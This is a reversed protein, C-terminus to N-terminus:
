KEKEQIGSYGFYLDDNDAEIDAIDEINILNKSNPIPVATGGFIRHPVPFMRIIPKEKKNMIVRM